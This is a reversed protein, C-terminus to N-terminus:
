SEHQELEVNAIASLRLVRTFKTWAWGKDDVIYGPKGTIVDFVDAVGLTTAVNTAHDKGRASWLMLSYGKASMARCWAVLKANCRGRICLTDDVDIAIVKTPPYKM